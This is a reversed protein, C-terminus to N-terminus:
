SKAQEQVVWDILDEFEVSATDLHPNCLVVSYPPVYVETLTTYAVRYVNLYPLADRLLRTSGLIRRQALPDVDPRATSVMAQQMRPQWLEAEYQQWWAELQSYLAPSTSPEIAFRERFPIAEWVTVPTHQYPRVSALAAPLLAAIAQQRTTLQVYYGALVQRRAEWDVVWEAWGSWSQVTSAMQQMPVLQREVWETCSLRDLNWALVPDQLLVVTTFWRQWVLPTLGAAQAASDFPSHQDFPYVQLGSQELVWVCFDVAENFGDEIYWNLDPNLTSPPLSRM